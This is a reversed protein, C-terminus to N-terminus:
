GVRMEAWATVEKAAVAPVSDPADMRAIALRVVAAARELQLITKIDSTPGAQALTDLAITYERKWFDSMAHRYM